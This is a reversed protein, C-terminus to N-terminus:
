SLEYIGVYIIYVLFMAGERTWFVWFLLDCGYVHLGHLWISHSIHGYLTSGLSM